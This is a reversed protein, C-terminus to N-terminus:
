VEAVSGRNVRNYCVDIFMYCLVLVGKEEIGRSCVGEGCPVISGIIVFMLLCRMYYLVVAGKERVGRSCVGEACPVTSGHYWWGGGRYEMQYTVGDVLYVRSM